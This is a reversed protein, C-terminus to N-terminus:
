QPSGVIEKAELDFTEGFADLCDCVYKSCRTRCISLSFSSGLSTCRSWLKLTHVYSIGKLNWIMVHSPLTIVPSKVEGTTFCLQWSSLQRFSVSFGALCLHCTTRAWWTRWCVQLICRINYMKYIVCFTRGRKQRINSRTSKVCEM